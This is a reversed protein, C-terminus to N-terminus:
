ADEISIVIKKGVAEAYRELTKVTLNPVENEIRSLASRAMGTRDRVDALSLGHAARAAKLAVVVEHIARSGSGPKIIRGSFEETVQERIHNYKAAEESTLYRGRPKRKATKKTM